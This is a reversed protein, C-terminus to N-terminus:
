EVECESVREEHDGYWVLGDFRRDAPRGERVTGVSALWRVQSREAGLNM